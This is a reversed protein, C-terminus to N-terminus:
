KGFSLRESGLLIGKYLQSVTLLICKGELNSNFFSLGVKFLFPFVLVLIVASVMCHYQLM